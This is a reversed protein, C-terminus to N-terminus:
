IPVQLFISLSPCQLALLFNSQGLPLYKDCQPAVLGFQFIKSLTTRTCWSTSVQSVFSTFTASARTGILLTELILSRSCQVIDFPDEPHVIMESLCIWTVSDSIQGKM